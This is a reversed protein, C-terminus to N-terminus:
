PTMGPPAVIRAIHVSEVSQTGIERNTQGERTNAEFRRNMEPVRWIAEANKRVLGNDSEASGHQGRAAAPLRDAGASLGGEFFRFVVAAVRMAIARGAQVTWRGEAM